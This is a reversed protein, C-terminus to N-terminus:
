ADEGCEAHGETHVPNGLTPITLKATASRLLKPQRSLTASVKAPMRRAHCPSVPLFVSQVIGIPNALPALHLSCAQLHPSATDGPLTEGGGGIDDM